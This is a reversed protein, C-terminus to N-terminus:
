SPEALTKEGTGSDTKLETAEVTVVTQPETAEAVTSDLGQESIKKAASARAAWHTVIVNVVCAAPLSYIIGLVGDLRAGIMIAIFIMVPHLGIVNGIYKPAVFNDKLWQILQFVLFVVIVQSIRNLPIMDAGDVAVAVLTPVFGITPGIVPVIEWIGLFVGLLLAYHVGMLLYVFIM